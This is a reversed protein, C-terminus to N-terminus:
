TQETVAHLHHRWVRRYPRGLATANRFGSRINGVLTKVAGLSHLTYITVMRRSKRNLVALVQVYGDLPHTEMRRRRRTANPKGRLQDMLWHEDQSDSLRSSLLPIWPGQAMDHALQIWDMGVRWAVKINNYYQIAFVGRGLFGLDRGYPDAARVVCCGGDAFTPVLKEPLRINSQRYLESV